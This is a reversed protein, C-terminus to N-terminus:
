GMKGIGGTSDLQLGDKLPTETSPTLAVLTSNLVASLTSRTRARLLVTLVAAPVSMQMVNAGGQLVMAVNQLACVLQWYASNLM